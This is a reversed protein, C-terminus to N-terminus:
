ETDKWWLHDPGGMSVVCPQEDSGAEYCWRQRALEDDMMRDHTTCWPIATQSSAGDYGVGFGGPVLQRGVMVTRTEPESSM